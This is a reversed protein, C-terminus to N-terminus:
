RYIRQAHQGPRSVAPLTANQERPDRLDRMIKRLPDLSASCIAIIASSTSHMQYSFFVSRLLRPCYM